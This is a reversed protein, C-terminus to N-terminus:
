LDVARRQCVARLAFSSRITAVNPLRSLQQKHVREYDQTNEVAVRLLYDAGGSMLHCEFIDPCDRVAREFAELADERQSDLSVEVFVSTARGVAAPDLVAVYGAIVGERELRQVRRLCASASLHVQEALAANTLRGDKQLLTLILRDIRDLEMTLKVIARDRV